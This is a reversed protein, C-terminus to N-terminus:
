IEQEVCWTNGEILLELNLKKNNYSVNDVPIESAIRLAKSVTVLSVLFSNLRCYAPFRM